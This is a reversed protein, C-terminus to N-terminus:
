NEKYSFIDRYLKSWSAMGINIQAISEMNHKIHYCVFLTNTCSNENTGTSRNRTHMKSMKRASESPLVKLTANLKLTDNKIYM